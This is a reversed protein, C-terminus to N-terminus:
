CIPNTVNPGKRQAYLRNGLTTNNYCPPNTRPHLGSRSLSSTVKLAKVSKTQDDPRYFRGWFSRNHTLHCTLGWVSVRTRTKTKNRTARTRTRTRTKTRTPRTRTKTKNRTARTRTRTTTLGTRTRTRTKTRTLRTRTKTRNRTARTRTRLPRTRTRTTGTTTLMVPSHQRTM